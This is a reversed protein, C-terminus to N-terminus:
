APIVCRDCTLEVYIQHQLAAQYAAVQQTLLKAPGAPLTLCACSRPVSRHRDPQQQVVPQRHVLGADSIHGVEAGVGARRNAPIDANPRTSRGMSPACADRCRRTLRPHRWRACAPPRSRSWRTFMVAAPNKCGPCGRGGPVMRKSGSGRWCTGSRASRCSSWRRHGHHNRERWSCWYAFVHEVTPLAEAATLLPRGSAGPPGKGARNGGISAARGRWCVFSRLGGGM